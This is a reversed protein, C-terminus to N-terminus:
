PKQPYEDWAPVGGEDCSWATRSAWFIRATPQLPPDSDLSGAPILAFGLDPAVRPLPSGCTTCFSTRFRKADPVKFGAINEEGAIWKV